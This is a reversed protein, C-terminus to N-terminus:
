TCSHLLLIIKNDSFKPQELKITTIVTFGLVNDITNEVSYM